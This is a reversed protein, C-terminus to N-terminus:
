RPASGGSLDCGPSRSPPQSPRPQPTAAPVPLTVVPADPALRVPLDHHYLEAPDGSVLRYTATGPRVDVRVRSGRRMLGFSLRTLAAPLRPALRLDGGTDRLGGLGAVLGLWTGALAGIHLGEGTSGRLDQLDLLATERLYDLALDLHGVEAAVVAQTCASLSSDRVTLAEYYDFDRRKQEPSFADGRLHLALVLDAQKVVQHRYLEFYSHHASLPYDELGTRAFDWRPQRCFGESQETVGLREDRPVVMAEAARCWADREADDVGLEAARDPHRRCIRAAERLNRQAMLNTYTNNGVLATYEDPGTVGDIRFRGDATTHGVGAWLRATEVLLDVGVTAALEEDGTADLYRVVADAVDADLHLAATSAPWYGSSEHGDVTRWPFAAGPLHLVEARRRARSLVAHRWRVAAAAADPATWTLVPVVFTDMEWFVHGAYGTGTLGKAPIGSGQTRAGAQLVSFLAFRVAQQLQEDGEVEVDAREWFDALFARHEELLEEWGVSRAEELVKRTRREVEAAPVEQAPVHAGLKVLRLTQGPALRTTVALETWDRGAHSSVEGGEPLDLVHEAAVGVRIHTTSTRAVVCGGTDWTCAVEPVLGATDPESPGTGGGSGRDPAAAPRPVLVQSRVTVDVPRDPASVEYSVGLVEPRVLSVMRRSSVVVRDGAPSAWRVHRELTGGRLDLARRHQELRGTRVDLAHGGVELCIAAASPVATICQETEPYGYGGEPYSLAREQYVASCFTGGAGTPVDEDLDGRVGVFGNALAFRSASAPSSLLDVGDEVVRWPDVRVM